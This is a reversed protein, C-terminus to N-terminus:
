WQGLRMQTMRRDVDMEWSLPDHLADLRDRLLGVSEELGIEIRGKMLGEIAAIRKLYGYVSVTLRMMREDLLAKPDIEKLVGLGGLSEIRAQLDAWVPHLPWRSRNSDATACRLSTHDHTVYRLLDGQREELDDFTKLGFRRLWEKRAQWEIRWVNETCGWLDFFWTKASKEAIEACKDYMRLVLPGEGLRFTQARGNKRHKNDKQAQSVFSEEDFDLVPLAYDFTFDVRSLREARYPAYGVSEAWRLFRAHLAVAGFQWLAFSRFTVFFNPQNFEGCQIAFAENELLFPYGSGTGHSALLFEEAGLRLATPHRSKSSKLVEKEVALREFSLTCSPSPALYYACEVTDHGFLLFTPVM